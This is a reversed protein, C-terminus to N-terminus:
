AEPPVFEFLAATKHPGVSRRGSNSCTGSHTKTFLHACRLLLQMEAVTLPLLVLQLEILTPASGEEGRRCDDDEEEEEKEVM